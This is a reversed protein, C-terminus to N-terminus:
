LPAIYRGYVWGSRFNGDGLPDVWTECWSYRVAQVQKEKPLGNINDLKLGGSCRGTLSLPTGAPYAVLLDSDSTPEARVNLTDDAELNTVQWGFFEARAPLAASTAFAAAALLLTHARLM